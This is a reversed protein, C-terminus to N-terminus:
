NKEGKEGEHPTPLERGSTEIHALSGGLIKISENKQRKVGKPADVNREGAYEGEGAGAVFLGKTGAFRAGIGWGKDQQKWTGWPREIFDRTLSSRVGGGRKEGESTTRCPMEGLLSLPKEREGLGQNRGEKKGWSNKLLASAM